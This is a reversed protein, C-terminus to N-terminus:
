NVKTSRWKEQCYIPVEARSSQNSGNTVHAGASMTATFVIILGLEAAVTSQANVLRRLFRGRLAEIEISNVLRWRSRFAARHRRIQTGARIAAGRCHRAEGETRRTASLDSSWHFSHGTAGLTTCRYDGSRLEARGATLSDSSCLRSLRSCRRVRRPM